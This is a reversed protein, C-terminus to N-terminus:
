KKLGAQKFISNLAGPGLDDSSKGPVTVRGPKSRHKFERQSRHTAVRPGRGGGERHRGLCLGGTM